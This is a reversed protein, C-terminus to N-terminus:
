VHEYPTHFRCLLPNPSFGIYSITPSDLCPIVRAVQHGCVTVAEDKRYSRHSLALVTLWLLPPAERLISSWTKTYM